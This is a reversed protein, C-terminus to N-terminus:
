YATVDQMLELSLGDEFSHSSAHRAQEAFSGRQAARWVLALACAMALFAVFVLLYEVSAQGCQARRKGDRM